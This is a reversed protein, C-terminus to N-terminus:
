CRLERGRGFRFPRGPTQEVANGDDTEMKLRAM